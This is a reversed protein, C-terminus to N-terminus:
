LLVIWNWFTVALKANSKQSHFFIVLNFSINMMKTKEILCSIACIKHTSYCIINISPLFLALFPTLFLRTISQPYRFIQNQTKPLTTNFFCNSSPNKKKNHCFFQCFRFKPLVRSDMVDDFDGRHITYWFLCTNKYTCSDYSFLVLQM